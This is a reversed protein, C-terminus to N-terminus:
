PRPRLAGFYTREIVNGSDAAATADVLHPWDGAFTYRTAWHVTVFDELAQEDDAYIHGSAAATKKMAAIAESVPLCKWDPQGTGDYSPEVWVLVDECPPPTTKTM